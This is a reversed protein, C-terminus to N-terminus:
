TCITCPSAHCSHRRLSLHPSTVILYFNIIIRFLSIVKISVVKLIQLLLVNNIKYKLLISKFVCMCVCVCM